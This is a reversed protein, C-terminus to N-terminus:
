QSWPNKDAVLLVVSRVEHDTLKKGLAVKAELRDILDALAQGEIETPTYLRNGKKLQYLVQAVM